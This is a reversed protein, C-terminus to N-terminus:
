KYLQLEIIIAIFSHMLFQKACHKMLTNCNKVGTHVGPKEILSKFNPTKPTSLSKILVSVPLNKEFISDKLKLLGIDVLGEPQAM